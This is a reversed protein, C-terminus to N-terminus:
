LTISTSMQLYGGHHNHHKKEGTQSVKNPQQKKSNINSKQFYILVNVYQEHEKVSHQHQFMEYM